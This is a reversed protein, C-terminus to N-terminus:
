FLIQNVFVIVGGLGTRDQGFQLPALLDHDGGRQATSVRLPLVGSALRVGDAYYYKTTETTTVVGDTAIQWELYNGVFVTTTIGEAAV